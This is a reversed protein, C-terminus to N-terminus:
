SARDPDDRLRDDKMSHYLVQYEPALEKRLLQLLARGEAEFEEFAADSAFDSSAPDDRNLTADFADAWAELRAITAPSLPLTHPDINGPDADGAWWLPWSEYDAMLKIQQAM